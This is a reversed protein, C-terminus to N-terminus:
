EEYLEEEKTRGFNIVFDVSNEVGTILGNVGQRLYKTVLGTVGIVVSQTGDVVKNTHQTQLLSKQGLPKSVGEDLDSACDQLFDVFLNIRRLNGASLFTGSVATTVDAVSLERVQLSDAFQGTRAKLKSEPLDEYDTQIRDFTADFPKVEDGPTAADVGSDVVPFVRVGGLSFLNGVINHLDFPSSPNNITRLTTKYRYSFIEYGADTYLPVPRAPAALDLVPLEHAAYVSTVARADMSAPDYEIGTMDLMTPLVDILFRPEEVIANKKINPGSFLLISKMTDRGPYGHATTPRVDESANWGQNFIIVFDPSFRNEYKEAAGEWSLFKFFLPVAAPYECGATAGLWARAPHFDELWARRGGAADADHFRADQLYHLPDRDDDRDEFSVAGTEDQAFGKIPDYAFHDEGDVNKRIIRAQSVGNMVLVTDRDIRALIFNFPYSSVTDPYKNEDKRDLYLIHELLNVPRTDKDLVYHTLEYLTNPRSWERSDKRGVPLYVQVTGGSLYELFAFDKASTGMKVKKTLPTKVNFGFGSDEALRDGIVDMRKYFVDDIMSVRQLLHRKGGAMGHDSVLIMYTEDLKGMVKLKRELRGIYGDVAVLAKRASGFQGRLTRHSLTYVEPFWVMMMRAKDTIVYDYAYEANIDDVYELSRHMQMPPVVGQAVDGWFPIMEGLVPILTTRFPVGQERAYNYILPPGTLHVDVFKRHAEESGFLKVLAGTTEAGIRKEGSPRVIDAAESVGYLTYLPTVDGTERDFVAMSKVGTRDPFLGSMLAACASQTAPPFISFTNPFECGGDYFIRRINPLYGNYVLERLVDARLGDVYILLVNAGPIPAAGPASTAREIRRQDLHFSMRSPRAYQQEIRAWFLGKNDEPHPDNIGLYLKGSGRAIHECEAGVLFPFGEEGIKGILAYCPAPGADAAPLPFREEEFSSPYNYTGAPGVVEEYGSVGFGAYGIHVKGKATIKLYAGKEVTKGTDTWFLDPRVKVSDEPVKQQIAPGASRCGAALFAASLILTAAFLSQKM